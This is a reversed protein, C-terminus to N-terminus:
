LFTYLLYLFHPIFIMKTYYMMSFTEQNNNQFKISFVFYLILFLYYVSSIIYDKRIFSKKKKFYYILYILYIVLLSVFGIISLVNADKFIFLYDVSLIIGFLINIFIFLYSLRKM